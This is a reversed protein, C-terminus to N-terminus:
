TLQKHRSPLSLHVEGEDDFGCEKGSSDVIKVTTNAVLAGGTRAYEFGHKDLPHTTICGINGHLNGTLM